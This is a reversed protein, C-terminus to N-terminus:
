ESADTEAQQPTSPVALPRGDRHLIRRSFGRTEITAYDHGADAPWVAFFVLEEAGVNVARHAFGPPTYAIVGPRLEIESAASDRHDLVLRGEGRLTLYVEAAERRAHYHGRTMFYEDGVRGPQIITAGYLLQGSEQPVEAQAYTYILPDGAGILREEADRDQYYGRMDSLRRTHTAAVNHMHGSVLDLLAAESSLTV